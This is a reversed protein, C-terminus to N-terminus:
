DDAADSTYLLCPKGEIFFDEDSPVEDHDIGLLELGSVSRCAQYFDVTEGAIEFVLAREPAIAAPDNRLKALQQPDPLVKSLREFKSGIRQEQRDPAVPHFSEKMFSPKGKPSIRKPDPLSLLPREVM